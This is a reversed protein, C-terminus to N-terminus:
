DVNHLINEYGGGGGGYGQNVTEAVVEEEVVQEEVFGDPAEVIEVTNEASQFCQGFQYM